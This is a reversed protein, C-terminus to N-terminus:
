EYQNRCNDDNDREGCQEGDTPDRHGSDGRRLAVPGVRPEGALRAGRRRCECSLDSRSIRAGARGGGRGDELTRDDPFVQGRNAPKDRV